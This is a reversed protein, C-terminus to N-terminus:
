AGDSDGEHEGDDVDPEAPSGDDADGATADVPRTDLRPDIPSDVPPDPRDPSKNIQDIVPRRAEPSLADIQRRFSDVGDSSRRSRSMLFLVVVVVVVGIIIVIMPTM